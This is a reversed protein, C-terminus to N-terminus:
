LQLEKIYQNIPKITLVQSRPKEQHELMTRIADTSARAGQVSTIYPIGYDVAARRLVDGDLRSQKWSPTNIILQIVGQRMMDLLAPDDTLKPVTTAPM